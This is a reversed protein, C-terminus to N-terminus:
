LYFLIFILFILVGVITIISLITVIKYKKKEQIDGLLISLGTGIVDILHELM